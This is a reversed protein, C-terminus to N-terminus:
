EANEVGGFAARIIALEDYADFEFEAIINGNSFVYVRDTVNLIEEIESSIFIVGINDDRALSRAKLYVENKAGLDLGVTPEDLILLTMGSKAVSRGIIVKQINGGSLTSITQKPNSFKVANKNLIEKSIRELKSEQLFGFINYEDLHLIGINGILSDNRFINNTRLESTMVIGNQIMQRTSKPVINKGNLKVAGYKIKSRGYLANAFESRGAGILGFFGVVEGQKIYMKVDHDRGDYYCKECELITKADTMIGRTNQLPKLAKGKLMLKICEEKNTNTKDLTAVKEGEAFVSIRDSVKFVEDLKHSIFIISVDTIKRLKDMFILFPGIERESLSSTPEDLILLRPNSVFARAIEVLQQVGATLGDISLDLPLDLGLKEQMNRSLERIKKNNLFVNFKLPEHGLMINDKASFFSVLNREQYVMSIGAALSESTNRFCVEKGEFFIRGSDPRYLGTLMKCFTSKGAGNEGIISHIEGRKINFDLGNMAVVGPFTKRLRNTELIFNESDKM